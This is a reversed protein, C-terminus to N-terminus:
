NDGLHLVKFITPWEQQLHFKTHKIIYCSEHYLIRSVYKYKSHNNEIHTACSLNWRVLCRILHSYGRGKRKGEKERGVHPANRGVENPHFPGWRLRHSTACGRWRVTEYSLNGPTKRLQLTFILLGTCLGRIM